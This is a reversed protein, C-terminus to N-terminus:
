GLERVIRFGTDYDHAKAGAPKRHAARTRWAGGNFAGGKLVRQACAGAVPRGDGPNGAHNARWCDETWEWTNGHVDYLGFGNAKYSGVPMTKGASKEKSAGAYPYQGNFNAQSTSIANGFWFPTKAGARAAYEWEAETPLRYRKGTKASIWALYAQADEYSINIAPRKGGGWGQNNPDYGNCGGDKRCKAWDDFTVEYRGIAFSYGIETPVQPTEAVERSAEDDPAGLLFSGPAVVVLEPCEECDKIVDGPAYGSAALGDAANAVIEGGKAVLDGGKAFLDKGAPTAFAVYAGGGILAALALVAVAPGLAGAGKGGSRGSPAASAAATANKGAGTASSKAVKVKSPAKSPAKSPGRAHASAGAGRAPAVLRRIEDVVRRWEPANRDGRWSTLDATQVRKFGRPLEIPDIMVPILRGSQMGDDAEEQVWNSRVSSMSWVVLVCDSEKLRADIVESFTSGPPIETDWWVNFGEGALAAAMKSVIDRDNRSYSIFIDTM